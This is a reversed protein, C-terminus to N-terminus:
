TAVEAALLARVGSAPDTWDFGRLAPVDSPVMPPKVPGAGTVSVSEAGPLQNAILDALARDRCVHPSGLHIPHAAALGEVVRELAPALDPTFTWDRAPDDSRVELPRGNRAADLWRAVLSVRERSPRAVEDPGFLYGLRVVHGATGPGLAAPVLAEAARKAAAYPATGTPHHADTLGEIGDGPAFVGSSSLFVFAAPRTRSTHELVALLPRLNLAVYAASTIGLTDADTTVWAGHVVLDAEPLDLPTDGALDATVRQIGPHEWGAEFARDVGTVQWGLDAFGSTLARGVFGGAGTVLVRRETM